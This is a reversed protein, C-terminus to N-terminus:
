NVLGYVTQPAKALAQKCGTSLPQLLLNTGWRHEFANAVDGCGLGCFLLLSCSKVKYRASSNSPLGCSMLQDVALKSILPSILELSSSFSGVLHPDSAVGALNM